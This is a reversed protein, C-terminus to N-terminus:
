SRDRRGPIIWRFGSCTWGCHSMQPVARARRPARAVFPVGAGRRGNGPGPARPIRIRHRLGGVGLGAREAALLDERHRPLALVAPRHEGARVDARRVHRPVPADRDHEREHQQERGGGHQDQEGAPDIADPAVLCDSPAAPTQGDGVEGAEADADEGPDGGVLREVPGTAARVLDRLEEALKRLSLHRFRLAQEGSSAPPARGGLIDTRM